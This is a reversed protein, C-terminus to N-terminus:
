EPVEKLISYGTVKEIRYWPIDIRLAHATGVALDLPWPGHSTGYMPPRNTTLCLSFSARGRENAWMEYCTGKHEREELLVWGLSELEARQEKDTEM